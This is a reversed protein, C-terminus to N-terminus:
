EGPFRERERALKAIVEKLNNGSEPLDNDKEMSGVVQIKFPTLLIIM